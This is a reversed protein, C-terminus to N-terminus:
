NKRGTLGGATEGLGLPPVISEFNVAQLKVPTVM